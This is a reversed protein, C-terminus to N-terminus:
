EAIRSVQMGDGAYGRELPQNGHNASRWGGTLSWANGSWEDLRDTAGVRDPLATRRPDPDDRGGAMM